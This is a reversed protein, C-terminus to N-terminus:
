RKPPLESKPAAEQESVVGDTWSGKHPIEYVIGVRAVRDLNMFGYMKNEERFEGYVATSTDAFGVILTGTASRGYWIYQNETSGKPKEAPADKKEGVYQFEKGRPTILTLVKSELAAINLKVVTIEAYMRIIGVKQARLTELTKLEEGSLVEKERANSVLSEPGFLKASDAAWSPM